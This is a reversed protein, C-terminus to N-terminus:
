ALELAFADPHHFDPRDAPHVLAWYSCAGDRDEVVASVGLALRAGLYRPSLRGLPVIADLELRDATLRVAIRPDLPGMDAVADLPIRERRRSFAYVAWEGSPSFNLEHYAPDNVRTVFLECCTHRWLEDAFRAPRPAPVRVRDLAGDVVYTLALRDDALSAVRASVGRIATNAVAPHPTLVVTQPPRSPM